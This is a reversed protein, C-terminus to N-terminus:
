KLGMVVGGGPLGLVEREGRERKEDRPAPEGEGRDPVRDVAGVDARRGVPEERRCLLGVELEVTITFQVLEGRGIEAFVGIQM